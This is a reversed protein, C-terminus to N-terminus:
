STTEQDNGATSRVYYLPIKITWEGEPFVPYVVVEVTGSADNSSNNQLSHIITTKLDGLNKSGHINFAPSAFEFLYPNALVVIVIFSVLSQRIVLEIKFEVSILYIAYMLLIVCLANCAYFYRDPYSSQYDSFFATMKIRMIASSMTVGVTVFFLLMYQGFFKKNKISIYAAYLIPISYLVFLLLTWKDNLSKYFLQIFPYLIHRGVIFEFISNPNTTLTTTIGKAQIITPFLYIGIALCLLLVWNSSVWFKLEKKRFERIFSLVLYIGVVGYSVPFSLGAIICVIGVFISKVGTTWRNRYQIILLFTVLLPWIFVTNLVRGFVEGGSSGMPICIVAIFVALSLYKEKSIFVKYGTVAILSWFLNAYLGILTPLHSIDYGAFLESTKLALYLIIYSGSNQFDAQEGTRTMFVSEFFGHNFINSLYTADEAYITPSTIFSLDRISLLVLGVSALVIYTLVNKTKKRFELNTKFKNVINQMIGCSIMLWILILFVGWAWISLKPSQYQVSMNLTKTTEKGNIILSANDKKLSNNNAMWLTVASGNVSDIGSIDIKLNDNPNGTKTTFPVFVFEGDKINSVDMTQDAVINNEDYVKVNINGNNSRNSYTAFQLNIGKIDPYVRKLTQSIITGKTIEGTVQTSDPLNSKSYDFIETTKFLPTFLLILFAVILVIMAKEIKRM